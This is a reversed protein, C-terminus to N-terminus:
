RRKKRKIKDEEHEQKLLSRMKIDSLSLLKRLVKCQNNSGYWGTLHRYLGEPLKFGESYLHEPVNGCLPCEACKGDYSEKPEADDIVTRVIKQEWESYESFTKCTSYSMFLVKYEDPILDLIEKKIKQNSEQHSLMNLREM